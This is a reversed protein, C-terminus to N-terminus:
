GSAATLIQALLSDPYLAIPALMEDLARQTFPQRGQPQPSQAMAAAALLMAISFWVGQVLRKM